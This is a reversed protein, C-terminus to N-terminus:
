PPPTATAEKRVARHLMVASAVFGVGFLVGFILYLPSDKARVPEPASQMRVWTDQLSEVRGAGGRASQEVYGPDPRNLWLILVLFCGALCALASYFYANPSM